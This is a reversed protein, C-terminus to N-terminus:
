RRDAIESLEDAADRLQKSAKRIARTAADGDGHVAALKAPIASIVMAHDHCERFRDESLAGDQRQECCAELSEEAVQTSARLEQIEVKSMGLASGSKRFFAVEARLGDLVEGYLEECPGSSIRLAGYGVAGVLAGCAIVMATVRVFYWSSRAEVLPLGIPPLDDNKAM